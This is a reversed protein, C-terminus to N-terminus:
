KSFTTGILPTGKVALYSLKSVGMSAAYALILTLINVAQGVYTDVVVVDVAPNTLKFIYLGVLGLLNLGGVWKMSQGDKIWGLAKFLGVIFTVASAFGLLGGWQNVLEMIVDM